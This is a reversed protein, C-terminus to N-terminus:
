GKLETRLPLLLIWSENFLLASVASGWGVPSTVQGGGAQGHRHDGGRALEAHRLRHVDGCAESRVALLEEYLPVLYCKM